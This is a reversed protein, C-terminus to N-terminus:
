EATAILRHTYSQGVKVLMLERAVYPTATIDEVDKVYALKKVQQM